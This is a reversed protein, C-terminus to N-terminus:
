NNKNKLQSKEQMCLLTKTYTIYLILQRGFTVIQHGFNKQQDGAPERLFFNIEFGSECMSLTAELTRAVGSVWTKLKDIWEPSIGLDHFAAVTM